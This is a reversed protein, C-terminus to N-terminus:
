AQTLSLLLREENAVHHGIAEDILRKCPRDARDTQRSPGQPRTPALRGSASRARGCAQLAAAASNNTL